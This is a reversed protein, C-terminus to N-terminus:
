KEQLSELAEEVQAKVQSFAEWEVVERRMKSVTLRISEQERAM